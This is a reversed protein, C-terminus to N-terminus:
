RCDLYRTGHEQAPIDFTEMDPQDVEDPQEVGGGELEPDQLLIAPPLPLLQSLGTMDTFSSQGAPVLLAGVLTTGIHTHTYLGDLPPDIGIQQLDVCDGQCFRALFDTGRIGMTAVPTELTYSEHRGEGIAGTVARLGGRLLRTAQNDTEPENNYQYSEILLRTGPRLTMSGGDTFALRVRGDAATAVTDGVYIADGRQLTRIDTGAADFVTVEGAVATAHGAPEQATALGPLLLAILLLPTFLPRIARM